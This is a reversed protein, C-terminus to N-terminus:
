EEGACRKKGGQGARENEGTAHDVTGVTRFTNGSAHGFSDGLTSEIRGHADAAAPSTTASVDLLVVVVAATTATVVMVVAASGWDQNEKLAHQARVM